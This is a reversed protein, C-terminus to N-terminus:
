PSWSNWTLSKPRKGLALCHHPTTMMGMELEPTALPCPETQRSEGDPPFSQWAATLVGFGRDLFLISM